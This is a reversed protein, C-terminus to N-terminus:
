EPRAQNSALKANLRTKLDSVSKTGRRHDPLMDIAALAAAFALRAEERQGAQELIEGRRMLWTEKRTAGAIIADIRTLATDFRKAAVELDIALLTLTVPHGLRAAGEDLGRIALPLQEPGLLALAQARELYFEPEPQATTGIAMDFDAVTARADGALRHARARTVLAEVNKPEKELFRNLAKRADGHAGAALFLRGRALDVVALEPGLRATADYDAVAGPWDGHARHLEGRRLHLEANKPTQAIQATLAEIQEHLEGHADADTATVLLLALSAAIRRLAPANM